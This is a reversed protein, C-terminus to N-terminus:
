AWGLAVTVSLYWTVQIYEFGNAHPLTEFCVVLSFSVLIWQSKLLRITPTETEELYAPCLLLLSLACSASM